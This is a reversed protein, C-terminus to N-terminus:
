FGRREKVHRRERENAKRLSIARTAEGRLTFALVHLRGDLDGYAIWRKERYDFRADAEILAQELVIDEARRLSIGHKAVNADDKVPDFVIM